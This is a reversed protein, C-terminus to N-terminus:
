PLVVPAQPLSDGLIEIRVARRSGPSDAQYSVTARSGESGALGRSGREGTIETADSFAFEWRVDEEDVLAFTSLVQDVRVVSGTVSGDIAGATDPSPIPSRIDQELAPQIDELSGVGSPPVDEGSSCAAWPLLMALSAVVLKATRFTIM